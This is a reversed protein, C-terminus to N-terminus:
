IAVLRNMIEVAKVLVEVEDSNLEELQATLWKTRTARTQILRTRGTQTLSVLVQRRDRPHPQRIVLGVEELKTLTRTM